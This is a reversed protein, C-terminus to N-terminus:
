RPRLGARSRAALFQGLVDEEFLLAIDAADHHHRGDDVALALQFPEQGPRLGLLMLINQGEIAVCDPCNELSM